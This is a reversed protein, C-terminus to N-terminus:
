YSYRFNHVLLRFRTQFETGSTKTVVKLYVCVYFFFIQSRTQFETWDMPACVMPTRVMKRNKENILLFFDAIKM